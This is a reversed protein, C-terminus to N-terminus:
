KIQIKHQQKYNSLNNKNEKNKNSLITKKGLSVSGYRFWSELVMIRVSGQFLRVTGGRSLIIAFSKCIRLM